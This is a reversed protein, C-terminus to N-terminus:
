AVMIFDMGLTAPHAGSGLTAFTIGANGGAGDADYALAGTSNDYTLNASLGLSAGVMGLGGFVSVSLAIRDGGSVFDTILDNQLFVEPTGFVFRDNGAGGTLTDRGTGGNLTDDGDGADLQDRSSGGDLFDFGADGYLQDM